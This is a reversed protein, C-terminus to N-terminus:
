LKTGYVTPPDRRLRQQRPLLSGEGGILLSYAGIKWSQLSDSPWLWRVSTTRHYPPLCTPWASPAWSSCQARCYLSWGETGSHSKSKTRFLSLCAGKSGSLNISSLSSVHFVKNRTVRADPLLLPSIWARENLFKRCLFFQDRTVNETTAENMAFVCSKSRPALDRSVNSILDIADNKPWSKSSSLRRQGTLANKAWDPCNPNIQFTRLWRPLILFQEKNRWM